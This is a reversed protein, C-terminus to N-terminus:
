ITRVTGGHAKEEAKHRVPRLEGRSKKKAKKKKEKRLSAHKRDLTKGGVTERFGPLTASKAANITFLLVTIFLPESM